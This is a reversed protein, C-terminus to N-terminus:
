PLKFFLFIRFYFMHLFFRYTRNKNKGDASTPTIKCKIYDYLLFIHPFHSYFQFHLFFLFSIFLHIGPLFRLFTQLELQIASAPHQQFILKMYTRFVCSLDFASTPHASNAIRSVPYIKQFFQTLILYRDSFVPPRHLHQRQTRAAIELTQNKESSSRKLLCRADKVHLRFFICIHFLYKHRSFIFPATDPSLSRQPCRHYFLPQSSPVSIITLRPATNTLTHRFPSFILSLTTPPNIVIVVVCM